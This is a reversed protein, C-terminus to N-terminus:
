RLHDAPNQANYQQVTQSILDQLSGVNYNDRQMDVFFTRVQTRFTMRKKPVFVNFIDQRLEGGAVWADHSMSGLSEVKRWEGDDYLSKLVPINLGTKGAEEQGEETIIYKIFDWSLDTYSKYVGDVTMGKGEWINSIAYGSNGAAIDKVPFSITELSTEGYTGKFTKGYGLVVPRSCVCMMLNGGSFALDGAMMYKAAEADDTPYMMDHLQALQTEYQAIKLEGNDGLLDVGMANMITTFTPEWELFLDLVARDKWTRGLSREGAADANALVYVIKNAVFKTFVSLDNLDDWDTGDVIGQLRARSSVYDSPMESVNNVIKYVKEYAADLEDFLHTNCLIAPKNYDRPAYYLGYESHNKYDEYGDSNADLDDSRFSGKYNKTPKFYGNTAAADLMTEYYLSYDTEESAEYYPRLDTFYEDWQSHYTDATWIINPSSSQEAAIGLMYQEFGEGSFTKIEVEVNPNKKEYAAKLVKLVEEEGMETQCAVTIKYKDAVINDGGGKKGCSAMGLVTGAAMMGTLFIATIKKM